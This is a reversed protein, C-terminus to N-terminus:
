HTAQLCCAYWHQLSDFYRRSKCCARTVAAPVPDLALRSPCTARSSLPPNVALGLVLPAVTPTLSCATIYLRGPRKLTALSRFMLDSGLRPKPDPNFFGSGQAFSGTIFMRNQKDQKWLLHIRRDRSAYKGAHPQPIDMAHQKM